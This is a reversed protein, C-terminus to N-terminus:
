GYFAEEGVYPNNKMEYGITTQEGHGCFVKTEPPLSFLKERISRVITEANGTPLDTRGISELFLTDGSFLLNEERCYYCVGGKTHGPTHIVLFSIGAIMFTEGDYLLVEPRVECLNKLLNGGNRDSSAMIDAEHEGAYVGVNYYAALKDAAGIHDFHGHTILIGKVSVPPVIDAAKIIREPSGGPDIIISENMDHNVVIYCNTQAISVVVSRIELKNM